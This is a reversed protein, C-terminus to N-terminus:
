FAAGQPGCTCADIQFFLAHTASPPAEAAVRRWFHPAVSLRNFACYSLNAPLAVVTRTRAHGRARLRALWPATDTEPGVFWLVPLGGADSSVHSVVLDLPPRPRPEVLLGVISSPRPSPLTAAHRSARRM